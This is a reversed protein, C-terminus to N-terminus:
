QIFTVLPVSRLILALDGDVTTVDSGSFDEARLVQGFTSAEKM